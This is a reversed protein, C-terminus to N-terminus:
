RVRVPRGGELLKVHPGVPRTNGDDLALAAGIRRRDGEVGDRPRRSIPTSRVSMSVAPRRWVEGSRM